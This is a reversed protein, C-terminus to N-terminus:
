PRVEELGPPLHGTAAQWGAAAGRQAVLRAVALAVGTATAWVLAESWTTSPSAPNAPPDTKKTKQWAAVLAKRTVMAALLGSGAGVVKWAGKSVAGAM